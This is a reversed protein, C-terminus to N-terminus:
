THGAVIAGEAMSAQVNNRWIAVSAPQMLREGLVLSGNLFLEDPLHVAEPAYNVAFGMAGRQSTRLGAPLEITSLSSEAALAGLIRVMLKADPNGALYDFRGNRFWIGRGSKLRALVDCDTEVHEQWGVIAGQEFELPESHFDPLSGVATVKLPLVKQLPGPPLDPPIQMDPTKSGSRCGILVRAGTAALKEVFDFDLSPLAPVIILAYGALDAGPPLIDVDLALGRMASYWAFSHRLPDFAAGQPQIRLMWQAEYSFILAVRAQGALEPKLAAIEDAVQRVEALAPAAAGDPRHLGAHM